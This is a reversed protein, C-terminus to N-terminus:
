QTRFCAAAAEHLARQLDRPRFPKCVTPVGRLSEPLARPGYGTVFLFPRGRQALADAIPFTQQGNLNVDLVALDFVLTTAKKMADGFTGAVAVVEYGLESLSDQILMAVLAEDEIVLIRRGAIGSM